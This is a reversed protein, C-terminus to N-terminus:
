FRAKNYPKTFGFLRIPYGNITNTDNLQEYSVSTSHRSLSESESVVGDKNEEERKIEWKLLKIAGEIIDEPYRVLTCINQGTQYLEKNVVVTRDNVEEVVYLGDNVSQSIQITDGVKLLPHTGNIVNDLSSGKFRIERVQFNNHTHVRIVKEIAIMKRELIKEDIDKFDNLEKLEATKILM